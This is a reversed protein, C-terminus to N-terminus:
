VKGHGNPFDAGIWAAALRKLNSRYTRSAIYERGGKLVVIYEGTVWSRIEEVWSANILSSRHVRLFGHPELQTALTSISARLLYSDSQRRMLAYNGQAEVSAVDAPDILLIKGKTKIGIRVRRFYATEPGRTAGLGATRGKVLEQILSLVAEEVRPSLSGTSAKDLFATNGEASERFEEVAPLLLRPSRRTGAQPEDALAIRALRSRSFQGM